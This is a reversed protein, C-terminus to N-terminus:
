NDSQSNVAEVKEEANTIQEDETIEEVAATGEAAEHTGGRAMEEKLLEEAAKEFDDPVDEKESKKCVEGKGKILYCIAEKKGCLIANMEPKNFSITENEGEIVVAAADVKVTNKKHSAMTQDLVDSASDKTKKPPIRPTGKGGIRRAKPINEM